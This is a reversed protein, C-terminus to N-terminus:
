PASNAPPQAPPLYWDAPPVVKAQATDGMYHPTMIQVGYENFVDLVNRSLRAHLPLMEQADRIFANLEYNVAFDGLGLYFVFPAPDRLVGTTRRAAELLMAEVQRWPTEYGIGALVTIAVGGERAFASYNVIPNNLLHSNPLIVEENRPTRVHTVQLRADCVDGLVDGVKIRDGVKFARRYTLAYGAVVNAIATTSGISLIVGLFLSVGKFAESGSGPIYPYAVILAFAIVLLRVLKYTPMAWDRDFDHLTVRGREVEVFFLRLVRLGYRVVVAVVVLFVIDPFAGVLGGGVKRLPDLLLAALGLAFQRTWPFQALAFDLFSLALVGLGLVRAGTLMGGWLAWIREARVIQFSQIGVAQVRSRYRREVIDQLFRTGYVIVLAAVLAVVLAAGLRLLARRLFGGERETRYEAVAQDIRQLYANGLEEVSIGIVRSDADTVAVVLAEGYKIVQDNGVPVVRLKKPDFEAADGLAEIRKAIREARLQAPFTSEIGAVRFLMHGDVVVPAVELGAELALAGSASTRDDASRSLPALLLLLVGLLAPVSRRSFM